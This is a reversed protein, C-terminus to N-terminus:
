WDDSKQTGPLDMAVGSDYTRSYEEFLDIIAEQGQLVAEEWRERFEIALRRAEDEDFTSIYFKKMNPRGYPGVSCFAAWFEQKLGSKHYSHTRYVGIRGSTNNRSLTKQFYPVTRRNLMPNDKIQEELYARAKDLASDRGGHLGDSFLKSYYKHPQGTPWRVQWGHTGGRGNKNPKDLRIVSGVTRRKEM